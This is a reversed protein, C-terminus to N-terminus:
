KDRCSVSFAYWLRKRGGEASFFDFRLLHVFRTDAELAEMTEHEEFQTSATSQRNAPRLVAACSARASCLM